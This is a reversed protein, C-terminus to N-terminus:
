RAYSYLLASYSFLLKLFTFSANEFPWEKYM